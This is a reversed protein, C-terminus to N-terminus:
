LCVRDNLISSEFRDLELIARRISRFDTQPVQVYRSKEDEDVEFLGKPAKNTNILDVYCGYDIAYVNFRISPYDQASIGQKILHLVRQDYLYDILEHRTGARLLFAKALKNKIVEEIIWTLLAQASPKSSIAKEKVRHYWTRAADRIDPVSIKNNIAKQAAIGIINIADRPV